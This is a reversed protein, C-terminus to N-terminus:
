DGCNFEKEKGDLEESLSEWESVAADLAARVSKLEAPLARSKEPDNYTEPDALAAEIEVARSELGCVRSEADAVAAKLPALARGRELIQRARDQRAARRAEGSLASESKAAEGNGAEAQERLRKQEKMDDYNGIFFEIGSPTIEVIRTALRNIFRRDHSVFCITGDYDELVDELMERSPPDLHNTPEDLLLFNAPNAMMRALLLRSKEGGSLAAVKKEVDDGRFLFVGLLTRASGSFGEGCHESVEELATKDPNLLEYQDQSFYHLSVNHGPKRAGTYETRDALVRMLTTKGLGNAGIIALRDERNITLSVNNLVRKDGYAKSVDDLQMVVKGSKTRARFSFSLERREEPTEIREIKELMRIRSQVSRAKTNKSRFREIFREVRKIERDQNAARNLLIELRKAKEEEYYSYNGNYVEIKRMNIEAVRRATRDLFERDHSVFVVAGPYTQLFDELWVLAPLDLHNTPEDLLLVDPKVLLLRALAVRMQWGGSFESIERDRDPASFGLGQLTEAARARFTFGGRTEFEHQLRGARDILQKQAAADPEDAATYNLENIEREMEELFRFPDLAAEMISRGRDYISDQPLLGVTLGKRRSMSGGFDTIDGEIMKLLTTKGSGNPGVLGLRDGPKVHLSAGEFLTQGGFGYKIDSMQIM